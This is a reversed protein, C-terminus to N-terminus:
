RRQEFALMTWVPVFQIWVLADALAGEPSHGYKLYYLPLLATPALLSWKPGNRRLALFPLLWCYYWPFQAPIILFILASIFLCRDSLAARRMTKSFFVWAAGGAVALATLIRAATQGHGPHIGGAELAVECAFLTLRFVSSNNEWSTAYAALGAQGSFGRLLLPACLLATSAAFLAFLVPANRDERKILAAMLPATWVKVAVSVSLLLAGAKRGGSQAARVAGLVFPFVLAEMHCSFFITFVALPNWWYIAPNAGNGALRVLLLFSATDAALLVARWAGTSWGGVIHSLAFFVQAAPPYITTLHPHNIREAVGGSADALAKMAAGAEGSLVSAPSSVYPNNGSATVAGDWLYRFYDDELVPHSLFGAARMLLGIIFVAALSPPARRVAAFYLGASACLLVTLRGVPMSRVGDPYSSFGDSFGAVIFLVAASAAGLAASANRTLFSM